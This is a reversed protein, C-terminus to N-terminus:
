VAADPSLMMVTVNVACQKTGSVRGLAEPTNGQQVRAAVKIGM